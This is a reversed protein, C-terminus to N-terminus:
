YVCCTKNRGSTKAQYLAKDARQLWEAETEGQIYQAVGLSITLPHDAILESTEVLIRLQEALKEAEKINANVPIIVFEEGGIRYICETGRLRLTLIKTFQILVEDGKAHGFTDNVKKFYDLDILIMSIPLKIRQQLKVARKIEHNFSRRNRVKTLPDKTAQISLQHHQECTRSAFILAFVNSAILTVMSSAFIIPEMISFFIMGLFFISIINILAAIQYKVLYYISITAPYAWVFQSEGKLLVTTLMGSILLFSVIFGALKTKGTKYVYICLFMMTTVLTIDFAAILWDAKIIRFYTFPLVGLSTGGSLWILIVEEINRKRQELPQM